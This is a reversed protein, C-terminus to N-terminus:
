FRVSCVNISSLRLDTYSSRCYRYMFPLLAGLSCTEPTPPQGPRPPRGLRSGQGHPPMEGGRALAQHTQLHRLAPVQHLSAPPSGLCSCVALNWEPGQPAKQGGRGKASPHVSVRSSLLRTPIVHQRIQASAFDPSAASSRKWQVM